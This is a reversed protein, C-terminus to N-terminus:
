QESLLGEGVLGDGGLVYYDTLAFKRKWAGCVRFAMLSSMEDRPHSQFWRPKVACSLVRWSHHCHVLSSTDSLFVSRILRM